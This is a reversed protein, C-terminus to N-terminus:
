SLLRVTPHERLPANRGLDFSRPAQPYVASAPEWRMHPLDLEWPALESAARPLRAREERRWLVGVRRLRGLSCWNGLCYGQVDM